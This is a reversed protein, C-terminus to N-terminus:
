ASASKSAPRVRDRQVVAGVRGEPGMVVLQLRLDPPQGVLIERQQLGIRVMGRKAELTDAAQPRGTDAEVMARKAHPPVIVADPEPDPRVGFVIAQDTSRHTQPVFGAGGGELDVDERM